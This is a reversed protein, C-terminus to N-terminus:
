TDLFMLLQKVFLEPYQFQSGHGSDPYVVLQADPLRQQLIFSNITAIIIDTHGNVVLTPQTIKRLYAFSDDAPAGWRGAATRHAAATQASVADDRDVQRARIRELWRRGAAQSGASPSFMIPLWMEDQAEYKRTFLAAVEPARSSMGEGGRPGTGVLAIRRILEPRDLVLQQTVEGGMSHGFVDIERLGLADIFAAADGAMEEISDPALGSSQGVGANDFLIVERGEALVDTIASDHNDLNGMFHQVLVIPVGGLNGFRRYAFRIGNAQAFQTPATNHTHQGTTATM